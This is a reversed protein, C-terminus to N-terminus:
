PEDGLAEQVALSLRGYEEISLTEGRRAGDIGAATLVSEPDNVLSRLANRLTKRRQGFAARVTASYTQADAAPYPFPRTTLKVVSSDVNPAPMFVSRPANAVVAADAYYAINISLAGYDKSGPQAVLRQAVEKQVMVVAVEPHLQEEYLKMLLPSTIYYPLNAVTKCPTQAPILTGFDLRLADGQVVEVKPYERMTHKLVEVLQKDIEVAVVSAGAEALAQTLTGIGPGIELVWDGPKIDAAQLIKALINGDILFNQGLSKRFHLGYADMVSRVANPTALNDLYPEEM